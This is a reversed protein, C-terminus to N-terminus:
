KGSLKKRPETLSSELKPIQGPSVMDEDCSDQSSLQKLASVISSLEDYVPRLVPAVADAM